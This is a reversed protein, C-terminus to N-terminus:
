TMFIYISSSTTASRRVFGQLEGITARAVRRVEEIPVDVVAYSYIDAPTIVASTLNELAGTLDFTSLFTDIDATEQASLLRGPGYGSGEGIETGGAVLFSEPWSSGFVASLRALFSKPKFIHNLLHWDKGLEFREEPKDDEALTRTIAFGYRRMAEDRSPDIEIETTLSPNALLKAALEPDLQVLSMNISMDLM